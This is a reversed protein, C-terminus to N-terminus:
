STARVFRGFRNETYDYNVDYYFWNDIIIEVFAFSSSIMANTAYYQRNKNIRAMLESLSSCAKKHVGSSTVVEKHVFLLTIIQQIRTNSMKKKRTNASINPILALDKSIDYRVTSTATGSHLENIICSSHACANRVQRCSLLMYYMNVMNQDGFRIGCFKYFSILRGFPILEVLVWIPINSIDYKEVLAKCYEGEGTKKIEDMLRARQNESLETIFDQCIQYGDETSKEVRALLDLKIYHEIDMALQILTYRLRMDIIALDRLYAFDLGIYEGQHPGSPHKTYNKRYSSLKFYYSNNSLYERAEDKSCINFLIGKNELHEIQQEVTLKPKNM